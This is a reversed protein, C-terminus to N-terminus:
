LINLFHWLVSFHPNEHMVQGFVITLSSAFEPACILVRVQYPTLKEVCYDEVLEEECASAILSMVHHELAVASPLVSVVDETLNEIGELFPKQWIIHNLCRM